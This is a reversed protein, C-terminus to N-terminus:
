AADKEIGSAPAKKGNRGRVLWVGFLIIATAIITLITVQEHLILWGLWVAIVPNVYAYISVVSASLKNLAYAYCAYGIMAGFVILYLFALLTDTRFVVRSFDGKFWALFMLFIGGFIMQLSANVLPDCQVPKYKSYLSGITWCACAFQLVLVGKIYQDSWQQKLEPLVLLAVGGFGIILGVYTTIGHKDSPESNGALRRGFPDLFIMYFPLVALILAAPGSPVTKEAWVLLWNGLGVLSIGVFAIHKWESVPPFKHGRLRLIAALISGAIIFRIASMWADPITRVAVRIALYTTGWLICVVILAGYALIKERQSL